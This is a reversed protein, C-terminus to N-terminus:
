SSREECEERTMVAQVRYVAPGRVSTKGKLQVGERLKKGLIPLRVNGLQTLQIWMQGDDRVPELFCGLQAMEPFGIMIPDTLDDMMFFKGVISNEKPRRRRLEKIEENEIADADEDLDNPVDFTIRINICWEVRGIIRGKEAGECNVPESLPIPDSCAGKTAPDELFKQAVSTRIMSRVAGSDM